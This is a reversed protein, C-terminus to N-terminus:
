RKFIRVLIRAAGLLVHDVNANLLTVATFSKSRDLAERLLIIEFFDDFYALTVERTVAGDDLMGLIALNDLELSILTIVDRTEQALDFQRSRLLNLNVTELNVVANGFNVISYWGKSYSRCM